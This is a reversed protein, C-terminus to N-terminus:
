QVPQQNRVKVQPRISTINMCGSGRIRFSLRHIDNKDVDIYYNHPQVTRRMVLARISDIAFRGTAQIRVSLYHCLVDKVVLFAEKVFESSCYLEGDGYKSGDGYLSCGCSDGTAATPRTWYETAWYSSTWYNGPWM